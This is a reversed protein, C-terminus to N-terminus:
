HCKMKYRTISEMTTEKIIECNPLPDKVNILKIAVNNLKATYSLNGSHEHFHREFVIHLKKALHHVLKGDGHFINIEGDAGVGIADISIELPIESAEVIKKAIEGAKKADAIYGEHNKVESAVSKEIAKLEKTKWNRNKVITKIKEM